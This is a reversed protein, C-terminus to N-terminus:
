RKAPKKQQPAKRPPMHTAQAMAMRLAESCGVVQAYKNTLGEAETRTGAVNRVFVLLEDSTPLVDLLEQAAQMLANHTNYARAATLLDHEATPSNGVPQLLLRGTADFISPPEFSTDTVRTVGWPAGTTAGLRLALDAKDKLTVEPPRVRYRWVNTHGPAIERELLRLEYLSGLVKRDVASRGILWEGLGTMEMVAALVNRQTKDLKPHPAGTANGRKARTRTIAKKAKM